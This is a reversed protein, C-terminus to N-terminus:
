IDNVINSCTYYYAIYLWGYVYNLFIFFFLSM